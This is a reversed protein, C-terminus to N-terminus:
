NKMKDIQGTRSVQPSLAKIITTTLIVSIIAEPLGSTLAIGLIVKGAEAPAKNLNEMYMTGYMVYVGGLVLVTNTLSGLFSSIIVAFNDYSKKYTLYATAIVFILLVFSLIANLAKSALINRYILYAMFIALLVYIAYSLVKLTSSKRKSFFDYVYYSVVGILVRPLISVLPNYFAFSLLNPMTINKILSSIGFILGIAAGVVPGELIAGVIVPIHMTTANIIGLPILGLPTLGLVVTIAGLMSSVVLKRLKEKKM